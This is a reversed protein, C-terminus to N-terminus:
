IPTNEHHESYKSGICMFAQVIDCEFIGKLTKDLSKSVCYAFMVTYVHLKRAVFGQTLNRVHTVQDSGESSVQPMTPKGTGLVTYAAGLSFADELMRLFYPNVDDQAHM